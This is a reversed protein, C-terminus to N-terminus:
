GRRRRHPPARAIRRDRYGFHDHAYIFPPVAQLDLSSLLCGPRRAGRVLGAPLSKIHCFNDTEGEVARQVNAVTVVSGPDLEPLPVVLADEVRDLLGAYPRPFITSTSEVFKVVSKPPV